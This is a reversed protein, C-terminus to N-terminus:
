GVHIVDMLEKLGEMFKRNQPSYLNLMPGCADRGSVPIEYGTRKEMDLYQETFDLIGRHIKRIREGGAPNEKLRCRYGGKGDPYIGWLSGWPAGLLLEWYLNHLRAPDHFKWIDRNERQSYLYSVLQGNLLFMEGVEGKGAWASDTGAIIGTIECDMNWLHKAAYSLMVAGSGAWGIDVAAASKCGGTLERYYIGAAKRQGEYSKLVREWHKMLYKRVMEVNRHTLLTEPLLGSCRCFDRLMFALEMSSFIQYLTFKQNVKHYLFRQFYDYKYYGATIKLAALRSWCAYRVKESEKPYMRKYAEMLVTGDRSLFLIREIGRSKVYNHIFRCYGTVFLGGYIYGYEYERSFLFLGNHIHANVLGRYVAGTVASMDEPRYPKGKENVNAYWLAEFFHAKAQRCDSWEQDGIHIYKKERGFTKRVVEYLGGEWKSTGYDCSVFCHEVDPYGAAKLIDLIRRGDLYMDSVAAVCKHHERLIEMVKLFYPNGRCCSKQCEWEAAMGKEKEIGCEEELVDWIDSLTVERGKRKRAEEEAEIRIRKFDPYKLKMGTLYFVDTPHSVCRLVLTDFVDFSIVDFDMLKGALEEPKERLSLASESGKVYLHKRECCSQKGRRVRHKEWRRKLGQYKRYTWKKM